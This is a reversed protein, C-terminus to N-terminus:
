PVFPHGNVAPTSDYYTSTVPKAPLPQAPKRQWTTKLKTQKSKTQPLDHALMGCGCRTDRCLFYSSPTTSANKGHKLKADLIGNAVSELPFEGAQTSLTPDNIGMDPITSPLCFLHPVALLLNHRRIDRLGIILDHKVDSIFCLIKKSQENALKSSTALKIDAIVYNALSACPGDLAGCVTLSNKFSSLTSIDFLKLKLKRALAPRM